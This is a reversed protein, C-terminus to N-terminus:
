KDAIKNKRYEAPTMHYRKKFHKNFAPADKFGCSYAVETITLGTGSLLHCAANLRVAILYQQPSVGSERVFIKYLYTRDIGIHSAVDQIKLDYSYGNLIFEVAKEFYVNESQEKEIATHCSMQSFLRYLQSLVLYKQVDSKEFLQILTMMETQIASPNEATYIPNQESLGCDKLISKAEYGDFGFWCYTWPEKTDATYTTSIGPSILFGQGASLAYRNKGVFYSGKGSLIFHFLYHPRTAPGFNHGSSCNEWGCHFLSLSSPSSNQPLYQIEHLM